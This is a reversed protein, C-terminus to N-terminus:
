IYSCSNELQVLESRNMFKKLQNYVNSHYSNLWNLEVNNLLSKQILSKDIPALTLNKFKFINKKKIVLILNEIRIGFKGDEYYGPENSIIMGEKLTIFNGKSIAQPGEHVNLFYGVGHGTGHPYDLNIKKLSKRAVFDIQSGNTNKNLQYNAVAIHGKLVRTFINKIREQNNELSITRTVDTTGFHYQGGSDILYLDGKKLIKNSKKTAKYHIIAANAGTGSITPFSLYRFYKNKKRFQLLKDQASIETITRKKFNNKLWFLFKTLAAGDYIHSNIINKIETKNKISKFSYIPDIEEKIKNNKELIKKFYISCTNSDICFKKNKIKLIFLDLYKIDIIKMHKLKKKLKNNIKKLSCFFNIKGSKSIILHSNPFPSFESDQGRINLLWAINEPASIFQFDLKSKKLFISILKVKKNSSQGADKDNILFFKNNINIGKKNRTKDVLNDSVPILRCKTDKFFFFYYGKLICGQTM